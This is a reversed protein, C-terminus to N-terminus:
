IWSNRRCCMFIKENFKILKMLSESKTVQISLGNNSVSYLHKTKKLYNINLLLACLIKCRASMENINKYNIEQNYDNDILGKLM